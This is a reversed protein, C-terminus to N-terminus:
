YNECDPKIKARNQLAKPIEHLPLTSNFVGFGGRPVGSVLALRGGGWGVRFVWGCPGRTWGGGRRTIVAGRYRRVLEVSEWPVIYPVPLM